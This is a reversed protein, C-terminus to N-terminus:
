FQRCLESGFGRGRILVKKGMLFRSVRQVDTQIPERRLLDEIKVDRISEVGVVMSSRMGPSYQNSSLRNYIDVIERIVKWLRLCLLLSEASIHSSVFEPIKYRDGIITLGRIRLNLKAPDDDIAVPYLGLQPNRQM